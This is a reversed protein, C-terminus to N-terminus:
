RGWCPYEGQMGTEFQGHFKDSKAETQVSSASLLWCVMTGTRIFYLGSLLLTIVPSYMAYHAEFGGPHM